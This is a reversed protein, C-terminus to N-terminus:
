RYTAYNVFMMFCTIGTQLFRKKVPKVAMNKKRVVTWFYSLFLCTKNRRTVEM